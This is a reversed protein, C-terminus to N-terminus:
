IPLKWFLSPPYRGELWDEDYRMTSSVAHRFRLLISKETGRKLRLRLDADRDSMLRM